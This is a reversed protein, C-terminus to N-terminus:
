RPLVVTFLTGGDGMREALISGGHARVIEQSIFLGMGLGGYHLEAGAREYPEFIREPNEAPIGIGHDRVTLHVDRGNGQGTIEVSGGGGYKIANSLLNEIVQEIREADWNGLLTADGAYTANGGSKHVMPEFRHLVDAVLPVLDVVRRNLDLRGKRVRTLELLSTVLRVLRRIQRSSVELGKALMEPSVAGKDVQRQLGEVQLTLAALPTKLEHAAVSLFEERERASTEAEVRLRKEEELLRDRDAQLAKQASVDMSIGLVLAPRGERWEFVRGKGLIWYYNGDQMRVRYECEFPDGRQETRAVAAEFDFRDDPHIMGGLDELNRYPAVDPGRAIREVGEAYRIRHGPIDWEWSTMGGADMAMALREQDARLRTEAEIRATIDKAMALACPRGGVEIREASFLVHRAGAPTELRTELEPVSGQELLAHTLARLRDRNAFAPLEELRRGIAEERRLGFFSLWADNADLLVGEPLTSLTALIMRTHFAHRFREESERLRDSSTVRDTVDEAMGQIGVVRGRGDQVPNESLELWRLGGDAARVQVLYPLPREGRLGELTKEEVIANAPHDTQYTSYHVLFERPEYGLIRRVSDSVYRMVGTVDHMYFFHSQELNQVLARYDVPDHASTDPGESGAPMGPPGPPVNVGLSM